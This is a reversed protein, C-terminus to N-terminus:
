IQKWKGRTGPFSYTHPGNPTCTWAWSCVALQRQTAQKKKSVRSWAGPTQCPGWGRALLPSTGSGWSSRTGELTRWVPARRSCARPGRGACLGWHFIGSAKNSNAAGPLLRHGQRGSTGCVTYPTHLDDPPLFTQTEFRWSDSRFQCSPHVTQIKFCSMPLLRSFLSKSKKNQTISSIGQYFRCFLKKKLSM